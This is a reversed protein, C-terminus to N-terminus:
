KNSSGLKGVGRISPIAKLEEYPIEVDVSVPSLELKAQAIATTTPYIITDLKESYFPKLGKYQEESTVTLSKGLPAINLFWEGRYGSDILGSLMLLNHKGVSGRESKCNFRYDYPISSAIGTPILTAKTAERVPPVVIKEGEPICAYIDYAGDELNRSPIVANEKTKAWLVTVKKNQQKEFTRLKDIEHLEFYMVEEGVKVLATYIGEENDINLKKVIGKKKLPKVFVREGEKYFRKKKSM